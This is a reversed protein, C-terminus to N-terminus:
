SLSLHAPKPIEIVGTRPIGSHVPRGGLADEIIRRGADVLFIYSSFSGREAMSDASNLTAFIQLEPCHSCTLALSNDVRRASKKLHEMYTLLQLQSDTVRQNQPLILAM